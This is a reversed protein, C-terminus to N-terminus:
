YGKTSGRFLSDATNYLLDISNVGWNNEGVKQISVYSKTKSLIIDQYYFQVKEFIM